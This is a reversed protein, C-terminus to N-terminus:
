IIVFAPPYTSNFKTKGFEVNLYALTEHLGAPRDCLVQNTCSM